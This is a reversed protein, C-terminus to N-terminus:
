VQHGLVWRGPIAELTEFGFLLFSGHTILLMNECFDLDDLELAILDQLQGKVIPRAITHRESHLLGLRDQGVDLRDLLEDGAIPLLASIVFVSFIM